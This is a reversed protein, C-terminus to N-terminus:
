LLSRDPDSLRSDIYRQMQDAPDLPPKSQFALLLDDPLVDISKVANWQGGWFVEVAGWKGDAGLTEGSLHLGHAAVAAAIARVADDMSDARVKLNLGVRYNGACTKKKTNM